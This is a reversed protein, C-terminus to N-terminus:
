IIVWRCGAAVTVTYSSNITIPGVSMGNELTDGAVFTINEGIDDKNCRIVSDTGLSPGGGAGAVTATGDAKTYSICQVTNAGTSQFVAVDGAATTINAAGPLDINTAHHTMTLIGDFQLTFQRDAAVTMAAFSTTGTVDFYDGDVDIVLPSASSIDGGKGPNFAGTADPFTIGNTGHLVLSM